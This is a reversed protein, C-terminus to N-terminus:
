ESCSQLQHTAPDVCHEAVWRPGEKVVEVVVHHGNETIAEVFAHQSEQDKVTLSKLTTRGAASEVYTRAAAKIAGAEGGCAGLALVVIVAALANGGARRVDFGEVMLRVITGEASHRSLGEM